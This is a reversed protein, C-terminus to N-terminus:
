PQYESPLERQVNAATIAAPTEQCSATLFLSAVM